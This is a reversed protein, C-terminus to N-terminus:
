SGIGWEKMKKWVNKYGYTDFLWNIAEKDKGYLIGYDGIADAAEKFTPEHCLCKAL